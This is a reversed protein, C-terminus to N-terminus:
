GLAHSHNGGLASTTVQCQVTLPMWVCLCVGVCGVSKCVDVSMYACIWVSTLVCFLVHEFTHLHQWASYGLCDSCHVARCHLLLGSEVAIVGGGVHGTYVYCYLLFLCKYPIPCPLADPLLTMPEPGM